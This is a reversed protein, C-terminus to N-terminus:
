PSVPRADDISLIRLTGDEEEVFTVTLPEQQAQPPPPPPPPLAPSRAHGFPWSPGTESLTPSPPFVAIASSQAEATQGTVVYAAVLDTGGTCSVAAAMLAAVLAVLAVGAPHRSPPPRRGNYRVPTM